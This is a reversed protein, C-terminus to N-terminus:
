QIVMQNTSAWAESVNVTMTQTRSLDIPQDDDFPYDPSGNNTNASQLKRGISYLYNPYINYTTLTGRDMVAWSRLVTTNDAGLISLTMTNGEGATHAGPAIYGGVLTTNPLKAVGGVQPSGDWIGDAPNTDGQDALNITFINYGPSTAAAPEVDISPDSTINVRINSRPTSLRLFAATQGNIRTPVNSVYLLVGAMRRTMMIEVNETSTSIVRDTFGSFIEQAREPISGLLATVNSYFSLSPVLPTPEIIFDNATDMGVALFRYSGNELMESRPISHTASSAGRGWDASIDFSKMYLYNAGGDITRFVYIRVDAISQVAEGSTIVARTNEALSFGGTATVSFSLTKADDGSSIDGDTCSAFIVACAAALIIFKKM